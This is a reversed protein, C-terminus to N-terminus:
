ITGKPSGRLREIRKFDVTRFLAGAAPGVAFVPNNIEVLINGGADLTLKAQFVFDFRQGSLFDATLFYKGEIGPGAM